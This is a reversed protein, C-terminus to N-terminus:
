TVCRILATPLTAGEGEWRTSDVESGDRSAHCRRGVDHWAIACREGPRWTKSALDPLNCRKADFERTSTETITRLAHDRRAGALRRLLLTGRSPIVTVRWKTPRARSSCM